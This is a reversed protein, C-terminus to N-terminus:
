IRKKQFPWEEFGEKLVYVPNFGKRALKNAVSKAKSHGKEEYLFVPLDNRLKFRDSIISRKPFNRSGNIKASKWDDTDRIDILQGKRMNKNFDDAELLMVSDNNKNQRGRAILWGAALGLGIPLIWTWIDTEALFM